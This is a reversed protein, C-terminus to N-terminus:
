FDQGFGSDTWFTDNPYPWVDELVKLLQGAVLFCKFNM